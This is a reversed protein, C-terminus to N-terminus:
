IAAAGDAVRKDDLVKHTSYEVTVIREMEYSRGCDGCEREGESMEWSDLHVHGCHPCTVEHTYETVSDFNAIREEVRREHCSDCLVGERHFCLGDRTGCDDCRTHEACRRWLPVDDGCIECNKSLNSM